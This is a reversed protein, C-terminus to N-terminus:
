KFQALWKTNEGKLCTHTGFSCVAFWKNSSLYGSLCEVGSVCTHTGFSCVAFWQALWKSSGGSLCM